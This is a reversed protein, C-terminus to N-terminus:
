DSKVSKTLQLTIEQKWPDANGLYSFRGAYSSAIVPLCTVSSWFEEAVELDSVAIVTSLVSGVAM